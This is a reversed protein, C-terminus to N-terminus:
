TPRANAPKLPVAISQSFVLSFILSNLDKETAFCYQGKTLALNPKELSNTTYIRIISSVNPIQSLLTVMAGRSNYTIIQAGVQLKAPLQKLLFIEQYTM